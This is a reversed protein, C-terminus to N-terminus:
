ATGKVSRIISLYAETRKGIDGRCLLDAIVAVSDAGAQFVDTVRELTIGGIAVIPKDVQEKIETIVNLGLPSRSSQKTGTEFLPGIAIYDVDRSAAEVAESVSHTSYGIVAGSGLIKRAEEPELDDEGLHVGGACSAHAVDVRDNIIILAGKERAISISRDVEQFFRRDARKERLQVCRVGHEILVSTCEAHSYGSLAPDTIAYLFPLTYGLPRERMM